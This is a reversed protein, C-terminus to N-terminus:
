PQPLQISDLQIAIKLAYYYALAIITILFPLSIWGYYEEKETYKIYTNISILAVLHSLLVGCTCLFCLLLIM